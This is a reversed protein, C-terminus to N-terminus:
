LDKSWSYFRKPISLAQEISPKQLLRHTGFQYPKLEPKNRPNFNPIGKINNM